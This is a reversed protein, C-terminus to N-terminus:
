RQNVDTLFSHIRTLKSIDNKIFQLNTIPNLETVPIVNEAEVKNQYFIGMTDHLTDSGSLTETFEDFNDFAIGFPISQLAGEPCSKKKEQIASGIETEIEELCTYNLCHGFRNLIGVLKKSNTMGKVAMGLALHKKPIVRGKRIAFLADQSASDALRRTSDTHYQNNVGGFLVNFFTLLIQPTEVDGDKITNFSVGNDSILSTKKLEKVQKRLITAAQIVTREPTEAYDHATRVAEATVSADYLIVGSKRQSSSHTKLRNGFHGLLNRLLAQASSLPIQEADQCMDIHRAYISTLLEPRQRGIIFDEIYCYISTLCSSNENAGANISLTQSRQAKKLYDSRCSHHYKLKKAILDVGSIKPLLEKDNLMEIAQRIRREGDKTECSGLEEDVNNKKRKRSKNCFICAAPFLGQSTATAHCTSTSRLQKAATNKKPETTCSVATFNKYCVSHYGDAESPSSPLAKIVAHFKSSHFYQKTKRISAAKQVATWTTDNFLIIEQRFKKTKKELTHLVCHSVSNENFDCQAQPQELFPLNKLDTCPAVTFEQDDCNKKEEDKEEQGDM